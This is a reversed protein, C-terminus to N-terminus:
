EEGEYPNAPELEALREALNSITVADRATQARFKDILDARAHLTKTIDGDSDLWDKLLGLMEPALTLPEDDPASMIHKYITQTETRYRM